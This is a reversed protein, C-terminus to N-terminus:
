ISSNEFLENAKEEERLSEFNEKYYVSIDYSNKQLTRLLSLKKLRKYYYEFNEIKALEYSEKLFDLGHEAKYTVSIAEHNEIELDVEIPTLNIAGSRFMNTIIIFIFRIVKIDFDSAQIDQFETMLLPKKMLCGIVQRYTNIDSLVM